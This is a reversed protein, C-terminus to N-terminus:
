QLRVGVDLGLTEAFRPATWVTDGDLTVLPRTLTALGEAFARLFFRGAFDQRVALRLGAQLYPGTRSAPSDIGQGDIRLLGGKGVVCASWRDLSGCTALVALLERHSFGAGDERRVTSATGAEAALEVSLVPWAVSGFVRGFPTVERSLGFGALGGVGFSFTRPPAPPGTVEVAPAPPAPTAPPPAATEKEPPPASHRAPPPPPPPPAATGDTVPPPVEPSATTTALLQIQLALAFAMARVLQGCDSSRSPFTREGQWQGAADQWEIRGEFAKGHSIVQVLARDPVDERFAGYGLRGVVISRFESEDPCDAPVAYALAVALPQRAAYSASPVLLGAVAIAHAIRAASHGRM